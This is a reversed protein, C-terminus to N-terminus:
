CYGPKCIVRDLAANHGRKKKKGPVHADPLNPNYIPAAMARLEKINIKEAQLRTSIDIVNDFCFDRLVASMEEASSALHQFTIVVPEIAKALETFRELALPDVCVPIDIFPLGATAEDVIILGDIASDDFQHKYFTYLQRSVSAGVSGSGIIAIRTPRQSNTDEM